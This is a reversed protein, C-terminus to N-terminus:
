PNKPFSVYGKYTKYPPRIVCGEGIMSYKGLALAVVAGSGVRRLDGRLISSPM